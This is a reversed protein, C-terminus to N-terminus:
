YFHFRALLHLHLRGLGGRRIKRRFSRPCVGARVDLHSHIPRRPFRAAPFIRRCEALLRGNKIGNDGERREGRILVLYGALSALNRECLNMIAELKVNLAFSWVPHVDVAVVIEVPESWLIGRVVFGNEYM